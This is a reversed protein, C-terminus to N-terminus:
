YSEYSVNSLNLSINEMYSKVSVFISLVNKSVVDIKLFCQQSSFEYTICLDFGFNKDSISTEFYTSHFTWLHLGSIRFSICLQFAILCLRRLKLM